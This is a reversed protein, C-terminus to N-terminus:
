FRQVWYATYCSNCQSSSSGSLVNIGYVRM